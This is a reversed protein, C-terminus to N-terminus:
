SNASEPSATGDVPDSPAAIAAVITETIVARLLTSAISRFGAAVIGRPCDTPDPMSPKMLRHAGFAAVAGVAVTTGIPHYLFLKRPNAARRLAVGFQSWALRMRARSACARQRLYAADSDDALPGARIEEPTPRPRAM